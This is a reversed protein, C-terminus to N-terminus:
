RKIWGKKKMEQRNGDLDLHEFRQRAEKAKDEIMAKLKAPDQEFRDTKGFDDAYGDGESLISKKAEETLEHHPEVQSKIADAIDKAILLHSSHHVLIEYGLRLTFANCDAGGGM